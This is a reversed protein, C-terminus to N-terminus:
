TNTFVVPHKGAHIAEHYAIRLLYHQYCTRNSETSVCYKADKYIKLSNFIGTRGCGPWWRKSRAMAIIM